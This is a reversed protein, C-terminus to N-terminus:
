EDIAVEGLTFSFTAGKDPEAEVWIQGGHRHIIRQILALGVGTGEYDEARHLRQFVGFLKDKYRMDFGVGNDKVSYVIGKDADIRSRVEIRSEERDRSFKLANSLLNVFVQRLLAPDAKAQPLEGISISLRRGESEDRLTDLAERAIKTPDVQVLRIAQRNMRSFNLLDDILQGMKQANKRVLNLYRLGDEPLDAAFDEELIRMFGDIGRLPARLDHSVSYSFSELERNAQELEGTRREVRSELEENLRIIEDEAEKQETIDTIFGELAVIDGEASYIGQGQEWVWKQTGDATYIRYVHRFVEHNKMATAIASCTNHLDDPHILSVYTLDPNGIIKSPPYGTLQECGDSVFEMTWHADILGRYAMGPLNKMLRALRREHERLARQARVRDTIDTVMSLSGMFEGKESTLSGASFLACLESGDKRRLNAQYVQSVGEERSQKRLEFAEKDAPFTFAEVNMGILEHVEYGLMEGMRANVFALNWDTDTLWIGESATEVIQRYLERSERLAEEALKRDHIDNVTGIWERVSGDPLLIPVASATTYRYTDSAAHWLRAEAQYPKLSQVAGEWCVQMMQRDEPHIMEVWGFGAYEEPTQGTYDEWSDQSGVFRGAPDNTWVFSTMVAVLSRYREESEQIAERAAEESTIDRLYALFYAPKGSEDTVISRNTYAWVVQGDKRIFRKELDSTKSRGRKLFELQELDAQLDDPHTVEQIHHGLLEEASYGIFDCLTPPVRIWRGELDLHAVMVLSFAEARHLREESGRLALEAEKRERVESLLAENASSLERTRREIEAGLQQHRFSVLYVIVSLLLAMSLAISRYVHVFPLIEGEWGSAPAALLEWDRDPAEIRYAIPDAAELLRSGYLISGSGDRLELSLGPPPPVLGSERLLPAEEFTITVLGLFDNGRYLARRATLTAAEEEARGLSSLVTERTEMAELIDQEIEPGPNDLLNKGVEALNSETPYVFSQVGAPAISVRRVGPVSVILTAAYSEFDEDTLRGEPSLGKLAYGHLAELKNLRRSLSLNLAKGYPVLEGFTHTRRDMILRRHLQGDAWVAALVLLM